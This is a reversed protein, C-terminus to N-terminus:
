LFDGGRENDGMEKGTSEEVRNGVQQFELWFM